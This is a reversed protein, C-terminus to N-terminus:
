PGVAAPTARVVENADLDPWLRRRVRGAPHRSFRTSVVAAVMLGLGVGFFVGGLHPDAAATFGPATTVLAACVTIGRFGSQALEARWVDQAYLEVPERAPEPLAALRRGRWEALLLAAAIGLALAGHRGRESIGGPILLASALAFMGAFWACGRLPRPVYDDLSVRRVRATRAGDTAVQWPRELQATAVAEAVIAAGLVALWVTVRDAGLAALAAVPAMVVASWATARTRRTRARDLQEAIAPTLTVLNERAWRATDQRRRAEPRERLGVLGAILMTLAILLLVVTETMGDM